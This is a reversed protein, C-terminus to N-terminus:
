STTDVSWGHKENYLDFPTVGTLVQYRPQGNQDTCNAPGEICRALMEGVARGEYYAGHLYGYFEQSTAEGAFFLRGVNARLNQHVQLSTSPPWNSYSGYSWPEQNWRPYYIAIPDPIDNGYMTRLVKMIEKQTEQNTQSEVRRAQRNVVTGMLIGSGPLVGPLDLPQFLPYYGREHPDAWMLYQSNPWFARDFQLFIKTYTGIEFSAIASKKWSPFPPYFQVADRQLVGLSFTSVAYDAEICAGDNTLVTVGDHTYNVVTVVTNLLLRPDNPRLFTAAEGRIITSYGRQDYVFLNDDSFHSFTANDAVSSFIASNEEPTFSSEFDSSFWDAFQAHANNPAPNWDVFRLAARLTKDQVNEKLLSGAQVVVKQMAAAANAIVSSFDKKGTKDYTTKNEYDTKLARIDYKKALTYIPNEPKGSGGLGEVWNAGAEVVYPSGDKKRGFNVEHLRGGIRDQYEIILFDTMSQNALTQAATIGTVGAGLIAVKTKRCANEEPIIRGHIASFGLCTALFVLKGKM